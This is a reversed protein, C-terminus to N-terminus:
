ESVVIVKLQIQVRYRFNYIIIRFREGSKWLLIDLQRTMMMEDM